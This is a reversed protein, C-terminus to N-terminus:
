LQQLDDLAGAILLEYLRTGSEPRYVVLPGPNSQAKATLETVPGPGASASVRIIFPVRGSSPGIIRHVLRNGFFVTIENGSKKARVKRDRAYAELAIFAEAPTGERVWSVTM